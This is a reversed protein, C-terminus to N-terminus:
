KYLYQRNEPLTINKNDIWQYGSSIYTDVPLHSALRAAAVMSAYGMGYPNQCIMGYEKGDKVAKQQTEGSDFGILKVKDNETEQMADMVGVAMNENTGFYGSLDPHDKLVGSVIEKVTKDESEYSTEIIKIDPHHNMMEETFGKVRDISSQATAQHAMVAVEGINGIAESMKKAAEAGANYNNTACASAILNNEVGSDIIVVPIGNEQATELQANCSQMDIASLCLVTPNDALVADIINIQSDIDSNNAPGEFTIRVKDNGTYGLEENLKKIAAEAGKKVNNWYSSDIGKAVVAIYTGKEVPLDKMTTYDATLEQSNSLTVKIEEEPEKTPKVTETPKVAESPTPTETVVPEKTPPTVPQRDEKKSGCGSIFVALLLAAAGTSRLYKM